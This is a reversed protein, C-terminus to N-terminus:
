SQALRLAVASAVAEVGDLRLGLVWADGARAMAWGTADKATVLLPHGPPVRRPGVHDRLRLQSAIRLGASAALARVSDPDGVAAALRLPEAPPPVLAGTALDRLEGAVKRLGGGAGGSGVPVVLADAHAALGERLAARGTLDRSPDILVVDVDAHVASQLGDDLLLVDVDTSGMLAEAGRLRDPHVAVPAGTVAALWPAEDGVIPALRWAAVPPRGDLSVLALWPAAHATVRRLVKPRDARSVAPYGRGLVGVRGPLSPALAAVLPTKARGGLALNGIRVSPAPLRPWRASRLRRAGTALRLPATAAWALRSM